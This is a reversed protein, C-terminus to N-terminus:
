YIATIFRSAARASYRPAEGTAVMGAFASLLRDLEYLTARERDTLHGYASTELALAAGWLAPNEHDTATTNASAMLAARIRFNFAAFTIEM